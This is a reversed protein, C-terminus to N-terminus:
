QVRSVFIVPQFLSLHNLMDVTIYIQGERSKLDLDSQTEPPPEM